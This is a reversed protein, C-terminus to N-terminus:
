NNVQKNIFEIWKEIDNPNRSLHLRLEDDISEEEEVKKGMKIKRSSKAANFYRKFKGAGKGYAHQFLKKRRSIKYFPLARIPLCEMKLYEKRAEKDIYFCQEKRPEKRNYIQVAQQLNKSNSEDESYDDSDSSIQETISNLPVVNFSSNSLFENNPVETVENLSSDVSKYAAFM